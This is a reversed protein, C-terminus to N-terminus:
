AVIRPSTLSHEPSLCAKGRVESNAAEAITHMSQPAFMAAGPAANTMVAPPAHRFPITMKTMEYNKAIVFRRGHEHAPHLHRRIDSHTLAGGVLVAADVGHPRLLPLGFRPCNWNERVVPGPGLAGAWTWFGVPDCSGWSDLVWPTGPKARTRSCRYDTSPSSRSCPSPSVM